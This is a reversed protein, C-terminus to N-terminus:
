TDILCHRLYLKDSFSRQNVFYFTWNTLQRRPWIIYFTQECPLSALKSLLNATFPTWLLVALPCFLKWLGWGSHSKFLERWWRAVYDYNRNLTYLFVSYVTVKILFFLNNMASKSKIIHNLYGSKILIFMSCWIQEVGFFDAQYSKVLFTMKKACLIGFCKQPLVEPQSRSVRYQTLVACPGATQRDITVICVRSSPWSSFLNYGSSPANLM